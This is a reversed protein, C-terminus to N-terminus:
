CRQNKAVHGGFVTIVGTRSCHYEEISIANTPCNDAAERCSQEFETPVKDVIVTSIGESDIEFVASCTEVCLGTGGCLNPDVRAKM